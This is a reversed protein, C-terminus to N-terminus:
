PLPLMKRVHVRASFRNGEIHKVVIGPPNGKPWPAAKAALLWRGVDASRLESCTRWFSPSLPISVSGGGDLELIADSWSNDFYADRDVAAFKVGYGAPELPTAVNGGHWGTALM